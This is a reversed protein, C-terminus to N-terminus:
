GEFGLESLAEEVSAKWLASIGSRRDKDVARKEFIIFFGSGKQQTQGGPWLCPGNIESSRADDEYQNYSYFM